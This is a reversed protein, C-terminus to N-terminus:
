PVSRIAFPHDVADLIVAYDSEAATDLEGRFGYQQQHDCPLQDAEYSLELQHLRLDTYRNVTEEEPTVVVM